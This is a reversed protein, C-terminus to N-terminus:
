KPDHGQYGIDLDLNDPLNLRKTIIVLKETCSAIFPVYRFYFPIHDNFSMLVNKELKQLVVDIIILSDMATSFHQKYITNDFFFYTSNLIIRKIKNKVILFFNFIKKLSSYRHVIWGIVISICSCRRRPKRYRKNM